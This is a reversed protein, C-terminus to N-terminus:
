FQIWLVICDIVELGIGDMLRIFREQKVSFTKWVVRCNRNMQVSSMIDMLLRSSMIIM